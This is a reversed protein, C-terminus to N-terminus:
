LVKPNTNDFPTKSLYLVDNRTISGIQGKNDVHLTIAAGKQLHVKKDILLRFFEYHQQFEIFKKAEEDIMFVPIKIIENM